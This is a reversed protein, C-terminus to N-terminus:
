LRYRRIIGVGEEFEGFSEEFEGLILILETKAKTAEKM